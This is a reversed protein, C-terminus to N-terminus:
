SWGDLRQRDTSVRVYGAGFRQKKDRGLTHLVGREWIYLIEPTVCLTERDGNSFKQATKPKLNACYKVLQGATWVKIRKGNAEVTSPAGTDDQQDKSEKEEQDDHAM